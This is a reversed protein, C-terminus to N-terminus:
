SLFSTSYCCVYRAEDEKKLHEAIFKVGEIAKAVEPSFKSSAGVNNETPSAAAAADTVFDDRSSSCGATAATPDIQGDRVSVGTFSDDARWRSNCNLSSSSAGALRDGIRGRVTASDRGHM